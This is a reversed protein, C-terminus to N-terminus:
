SNLWRRKVGTDDFPLQARQTKTGCQRGSSIVLFAQGTTLAHAAITNASLGKAQEGLLAAIAEGM